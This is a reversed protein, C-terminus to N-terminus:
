DNLWQWAKESHAHDFYQMPADLVIDCFRTAWDQWSSEGVIAIKGYDDKHKIDFKVDEKVAALDMGNFDALEIYFNLPEGHSIADEILPEVHKVEEKTITGSVKLVAIHNETIKTLNLM